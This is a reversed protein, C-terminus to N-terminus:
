YAYCAIDYLQKADLNNAYQYMLKRWSWFSDNDSTKYETLGAMARQFVHSHCNPMSPIVCDLEIDGERKRVAHNLQTILGHSDLKVRVNQQWGSALLAQKFFYNNM